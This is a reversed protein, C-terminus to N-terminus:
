SSATKRVQVIFGQELAYNHGKRTLVYRRGFLLGRASGVLGKDVLSKLVKAIRQRSMHLGRAIAKLSLGKNGALAIKRFVIYEYEGLQASRSFEAPKIESGTEISVREPQDRGSLKKIYYQIRSITKQFFPILAVIMFALLFLQVWISFEESNQWLNFM